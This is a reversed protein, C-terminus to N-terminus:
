AGEASDDAGEKVAMQCGDLLDDIKGAVEAMTETTVHSYIDLTTRTSSHGLLEAVKKPHTDTELLYTALGHRLDHFRITPAGAAELLPRFSRRIVNSWRLWGGKTDCFVPGKIHGEKLMAKRHAKLAAVAQSPLAVTRRSRDTKTDGLAHKGSLESLTQHVRMTGRKLDLDKWQLALLEGRRAGTLAAVVYLAGLRTEAASALVAACQERTLTTPARTPRRPKDVASCPNIRIYGWKVAQRFAANLIEHAMSPARKSSSKSLRTYLQQVQAPKVAPLRVHGVHPKIHREIFEEYRAKTSARLNTRHEMWHDLYTGVTYSSPKATLDIGEREVEARKALVEAKTKGYLSKRTRRGQADYGLSISCVWRGDKRQYVSAEGRGRRKRAM